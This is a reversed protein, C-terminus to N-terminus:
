CREMTRLIHRGCFPCDRSRRIVAITNDWSFDGAAYPVIGVRNLTQCGDLQQNAAITAEIFGQVPGAHSTSGGAYVYLLEYRETNADPKV